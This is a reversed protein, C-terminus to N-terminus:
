SRENVGGYLKTYLDRKNMVVYYVDGLPSIYMRIAGIRDGKYKPWSESGHPINYCMFTGKRKRIGGIM